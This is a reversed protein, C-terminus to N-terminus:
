VISHDAHVILRAIHDVRMLVRAIEFLWLTKREQM